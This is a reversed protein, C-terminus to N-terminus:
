DYPDSLMGCTMCRVGNWPGLSGCHPCYWTHDPTDSTPTIGGLKGDTVTALVGTTGVVKWRGPDVHISVEDYLAVIDEDAHTEGVTFLSELDTQTIADTALGVMVKGLLKDKVANSVVRKEIARVESADRQLRDLLTQILPTPRFVATGKKQNCRIHAPIWNSYNNMDFNRPLGLSKKVGALEDPKDILREPVVHDGTAEGLRLPEDCLLCKKKHFMWLAYKQEYTFVHKKM